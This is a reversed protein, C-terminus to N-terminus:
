ELTLSVDKEEEGRRFLVDKTLIFFAPNVYLDM